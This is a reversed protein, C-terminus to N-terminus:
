LENWKALVMMLMVAQVSTMWAGIGFGGQIDDRVVAWTVSVVGSVLLMLLTAVLASFKNLGELIHIGWGVVLEDGNQM